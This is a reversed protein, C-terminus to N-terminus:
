LMEKKQKTLSDEVVDDDLVGVLFNYCWGTKLHYSPPGAHQAVTKLGFVRRAMKLCLHAVSLTKHKKTDDNFQFQMDRMFEAVNEKPIRVDYFKIESVIPASFGVRKETELKYRWNNIDKVISEHASKHGYAAFIVHAM